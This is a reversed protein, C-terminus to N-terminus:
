ADVWQPAPCARLRVEWFSSPGPTSRRARSGARTAWLWTHARGRHTLSCGARLGHAPWVAHTPDVRPRSKPPDGGGHGSGISFANSRRARNSRDTHVDLHHHAAILM